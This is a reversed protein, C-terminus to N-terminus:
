NGSKRAAGWTIPLLEPPVGFPFPLPVEDVEDVVNDDLGEADEDLILEPEAELFPTGLQARAQALDSEQPGQRLRLHCPQLTQLHQLIDDFRHRRQLRHLVQHCGLHRRPSSLRLTSLSKSSVPM